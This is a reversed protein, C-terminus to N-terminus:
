LRPVPTNVIWSLPGVALVTVPVVSVRTRSSDRGTPVSVTTCMAGFPRAVAGAVCDVLQHQGPRIHGRAQVRQIRGVDIGGMQPLARLDHEVLRAVYDGARDAGGGIEGDANILRRAHHRERLRVVDPM